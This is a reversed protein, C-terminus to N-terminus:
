AQRSRGNQRRRRHDPSIASKFAKTVNRANIHWVVQIRQIFAELVAQKSRFYHFFAGNSMGLENRIDQITMRGYGKTYILRQAADVIEGAKAEYEGQNINRSM